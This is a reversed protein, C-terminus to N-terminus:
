QVDCVTTRGFTAVTALQDAHLKLVPQLYKTTLGSFEDPDVIISTIHQDRIFQWIKEPEDYLPISHSRMQTWFWVMNSQRSMVVAQPRNQKVWMAADYLEKAAGSYERGRLRRAQPSAVSFALNMSILLAMATAAVPGVINAMRLRPLLWEVLKSISYAVYYFLFPFVPVLYRVDYWTYVALIGGYCFLHWEPLRPQRFLHAVFGAVALLMIVASVLAQPSLRMQSRVRLSSDPASFILLYGQINGAIKKARETLSTPTSEKEDINSRFAFKSYGGIATSGAQSKTYAFWSGAVLIAALLGAIAPALVLKKQQRFQALAFLGFGAVLAVGVTRTLVSLGIFAGAVLAMPLTRKETLALQGLLMAVTIVFCYPAETSVDVTWYIFPFSVAALVVAWGALRRDYFRIFMIYSLVLAVGALLGNVLKFVWVGAGFAGAIALLCPTVPPWLSQFRGDITYGQGHRLSDAIRLFDVADGGFKLRGNIFSAYLALLAVGIILPLLKKNM